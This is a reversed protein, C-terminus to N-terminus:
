AYVNARKRVREPHILTRVWRRPLLSPLLQGTETGERPSQPNNRFPFNKFLLFKTPKRGRGLYSPNRVKLGYVLCDVSGLKRVRELHIPTKCIHPLYKFMTLDLKM